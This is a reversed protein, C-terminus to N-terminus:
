FGLRGGLIVGGGRGPVPGILPSFTLRGGGVPIPEWSERRILAGIAMGLGGAMLGLELGALLAVELGQEACKDNEAALGLTVVTFLETFLECGTVFMLGMVVGTAAGAGAGYALGKKWLRRAGLSRDLGYIQDYGFSQRRGQGVLVDFGEGSVAAVEGTAAAGVGVVYVRVRDGVDQAALPSSVLAVALMGAAAAGRGSAGRIAM